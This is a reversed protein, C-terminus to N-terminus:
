VGLQARLALQLKMPLGLDSWQQETLGQLDNVTTLWHQDELKSAQAALETWKRGMASALKPLAESLPESTDMAVQATSQVVVKARAVPAAAVPAAAPAAEPMQDPWVEGNLQGIAATAQEVDGLQVMAASSGKGRTDPIIKSRVVKYGLGTFVANMQTQSPAASPLGTIYLNASPISPDSGAFKVELVNGNVAATAHGNTGGGESLTGWMEGNLMGIAGTAEEESNLQVMAASNGMGRSDPIVKSRAVTYGLGQFVANLEQQTPAPSPLGRIYLNASPATPDAGAYKVDLPGGASPAAQVQGGQGAPAKSTAFTVSLTNDPMSAPSQGHLKNIADQAQAASALEVMAASSGKGTTDVLTKARVVQHGLDEFLKYLTDKECEPSPLGLIYLNSSPANGGGKGAGKAGKSTWKGGQGPANDAFKVMWGEYGNKSAIAAQAEEPSAFQVFACGKSVGSNPDMMVRCSTITGFEQFQEMLDNQGIHTQLSGVFLNGHTPLGSAEGYPGSREEPM